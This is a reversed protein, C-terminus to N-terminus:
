SFLASCAISDNNSYEGSSATTTLAPSFPSSPSSFFILATSSTGPSITFNLTPSLTGASQRTNSMSVDISLISCDIKVPSDSLTYLVVSATSMLFATSCSCFFMINAPVVTTFPRAVHTTHWVPNSVANPFM